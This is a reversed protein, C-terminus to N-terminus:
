TPAPSVARRSGDTNCGYSTGDPRYCTGYPGPATGWFAKLALGGLGGLAAVTALGAVVMCLLHQRRGPGRGAGARALLGWCAYLCVALVLSAVPWARPQWDILLAAAAGALSAEAVLYRRSHARATEALVTYVTPSPSGGRRAASAPGM